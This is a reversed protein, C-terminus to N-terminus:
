LVHKIKQLARGHLRIINRYTYNLDVAIREWKQGLIYRRHLIDGEVGGVLDIAKSVKRMEDAAIMLEATYETQMDLLKDVKGTPDHTSIQVKDSSYDISMGEIANRLEEIREKLQRCRVRSRTYGQLFIKVEETTLM